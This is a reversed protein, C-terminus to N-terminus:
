LEGQEALMRRICLRLKTHIKAITHYMVHTSLGVVEALKKTTVGGEYRMRILNYDRKDLKRLCIRLSEKLPSLMELKKEARDAISQMLEASIFVKSRSAKEIFRLTQFRAIKFGWATFNTTPQFSDFNKWMVAYTEQMIEEADAANHVMMLIFPYVIDQSQRMLKIFLKEKEMRDQM